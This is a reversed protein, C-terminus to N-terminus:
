DKDYNQSLFEPEIILLLIITQLAPFQPVSVRLSRTLPKTLLVM